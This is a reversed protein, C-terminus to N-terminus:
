LVKRGFASFIKYIVFDSFFVSVNYKVFPVCLRNEDKWVVRAYMYDWPTVHSMQEKTYWFTTEEEWAYLLYEILLTNKSLYWVFCKVTNSSSQSLKGFVNTMTKNVSNCNHLNVLFIMFFIALPILSLFISGHHENSSSFKEIIRSTSKLHSLDHDINETRKLSSVLSNDTFLFWYRRYMACYHCHWWCRYCYMVSVITNFTIGTISKLEVSTSGPNPANRM